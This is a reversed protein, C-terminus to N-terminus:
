DERPLYIRERCSAVGWTPYHTKPRSAAIRLSLIRTFFNRALSVHPVSGKLYTSGPLIVTRNMIEDRVCVALAMGEYLDLCYRGKEQIEAIAERPDSEENERGVEVDILLYWGQPAEGTDIHRIEELDLGVQTQHENYGRRFFELQKELPIRRNVIVFPIHGKPVDVVRPLGIEWLKALSEYTGRSVRAGEGLYRHLSLEYMQLDLLKRVNVRASYPLPDSGTSSGTKHHKM